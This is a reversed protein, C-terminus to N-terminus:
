LLLAVAILAAAGYWVVAACAVLGGAEPDGDALHAFDKDAAADAAVGGVDQRRKAQFLLVKEARLALLHGLRQNRLGEGRDARLHRVRNVVVEQAEQSKG